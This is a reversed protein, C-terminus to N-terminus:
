RADSAFYYEIAAGEEHLISWKDSFVDEENTIVDNDAVLLCPLVFDPMMGVIMHFLCLCLCDFMRMERM